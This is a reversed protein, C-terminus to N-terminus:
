NNGNQNTLYFMMSTITQGNRILGNVSFQKLRQIKEKLRATGANIM